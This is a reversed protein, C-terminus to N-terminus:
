QAMPQFKEQFIKAIMKEAGPKQVKYIEKLKLRIKERRKEDQLFSLLADAVLKATLKQALEPVVEEEALVNPHALFGFRLFLLQMLWRKLYKGALPVKELLYPIGPYPIEEMRNTPLVVLMPVGLYGAEACKTGPITLLCDSTKMLGYQNGRSLGIELGNETRIWKKGDNEFIEGSSSELVHKLHPRILAELLSDEVFPSIALHFEIKKSCAEQALEAIRLYFPLLHKLEPIRSGPFLGVRYAHSNQRSFADFAFDENKLSMEIADVVLDGCVFIKQAPIKRKVLLEKQKESSVFYGEIGKDWWREGWQYAYTKANLRKGLLYALFLDGGLHVLITEGKSFSFPLRQAFLFRLSQAPSFVNSIDLMERAIKAENGTAYQCPFLFLSLDIQPSKKRLAFVFPRVWGWLEGPSNASIAIKM